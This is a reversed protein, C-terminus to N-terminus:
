PQEAASESIWEAPPLYCKFGEIQDAKVVARGDLSLAMGALAMGSGASLRMWAVLPWAIEEGDILIVAAWGLAPILNPEVVGAAPRTAGM